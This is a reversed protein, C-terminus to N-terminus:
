MFVPIICRVLVNTNIKTSRPSQIVENLVRGVRGSAEARFYPCGRFDNSAIFDNDDDDDDVDKNLFTNLITYM